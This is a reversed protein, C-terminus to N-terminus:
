LMINDIHKGPAKRIQDLTWVMMVLKCMCKIIPDCRTLGRSLQLTGKSPILRGQLRCALAHRILCTQIGPKKGTKAETGLGNEDFGVGVPKTAIDCLSDCQNVLFSITCRKLEPQLKPVAVHLPLEYVDNAARLRQILRYCRHDFSIYLIFHTVMLYAEWVIDSAVVRKTGDDWGFGSANRM